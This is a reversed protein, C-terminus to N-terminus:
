QATVLSRHCQGLQALGGRLAVTIGMLCAGVPVLSTLM